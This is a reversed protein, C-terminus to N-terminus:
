DRLKSIRKFQTTKFYNEIRSFLFNVLLVLLIIGALIVSIEGTNLNMAGTEKVGKLSLQRKKFSKIKQTSQNQHTPDISKVEIRSALTNKSQKFEFAFLLPVAFVLLLASKM